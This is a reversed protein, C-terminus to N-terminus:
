LDFFGNKFINNLHSKLFLNNKCSEDMGQYPVSECETSLTVTLEELNGTFNPDDRFKHRINTVKRNRRGKSSVTSIIRSYRTFAETLIDCTFNTAKLFWSHYM